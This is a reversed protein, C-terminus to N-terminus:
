EGVVEAEHDDIRLLLSRVIRLITERPEQRAVDRATLALRTRDSLHDLVGNCCKSSIAAFYEDGAERGAACHSRNHERCVRLNKGAAGNNGSQRIPARAVYLLCELSHEALLSISRLRKAIAHSCCGSMASWPWFDRYPVTGAIRDYFRGISFVDNPLPRIHVPKRLTGRMLFEDLVVRAAYPAICVTLYQDFRKGDAAHRMAHRERRRRFLTAARGTCKEQIHSDGRRIVDCAEPSQLFRRNFHRTGRRRHRCHNFNGSAAAGQNDSSCGGLVRMTRGFGRKRLTFLSLRTVREVGVRQDRRGELGCAKRNRLNGSRWGACGRANCGARDDRRGQFGGSQHPTLEVSPPRWM